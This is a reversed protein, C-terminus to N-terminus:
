RTASATTIGIVPHADSRKPAFCSHISTTPSNMAPDASDPSAHDAPESIKKRRSWPSPPPMIMGAPIVIRACAAPGCRM